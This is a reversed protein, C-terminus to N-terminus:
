KLKSSQVTTVDELVEAQDAVWEQVYRFRTTEQFESLMNYDALFDEVDAAEAFEYQEGYALLAEEYYEDDFNLNERRAIYYLIMDGFCEEEATKELYDYFDEIDEYGLTDNVYEKLTKGSSEALSRYSNLMSDYLEDYEKEPLKLLKSNDLLYQWTLTIKYTSLYENYRSQLNNRIETERGQRNYGFREQFFEDTSELTDIEDVRDIHIEITAEKGSTLIDRYYPDPFTFTLEKDEGKKMGVIAEEIEPIDFENTGLIFSHGEGESDTEFTLYSYVEDDVYCTTSIVVRDGEACPREVDQTFPSYVALDINIMNEIDETSPTYTLNPVKIGTYDCVDVYDPLYYDYPEGTRDYENYAEDTCGAATLFLILLALFWSTCQLIRKM